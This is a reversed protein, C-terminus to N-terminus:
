AQINWHGNAYSKPALSQWCLSSCSRMGEVKCGILPLCSMGSTNLLKDQCCCTPYLWFSYFQQLVQDILVTFFIRIHRSSQQYKNRVVYMVRVARLVQRLIHQLNSCLKVCNLCIGSKWPGRKLKESIPQHASSVFNRGLSILCGSGILAGFHSIEVPQLSSPIGLM